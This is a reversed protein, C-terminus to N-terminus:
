GVETLTKQSEGNLLRVSLLKDQSRDIMGGRDDAVASSLLAIPGWLHFFPLPLFPSSVICNQGKERWIMACSLCCVSTMRPRDKMITDSGLIASVANHRTDLLSNNKWLCCRNTCKHCEIVCVTRLAGYKRAM